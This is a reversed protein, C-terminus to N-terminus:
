YGAWKDRPSFGQPYAETIVEESDSSETVTSSFHVEPEVLPAPTPSLQKQLQNSLNETTSAVAPNELVGLTVSFILLVAPILFLRYKTRM